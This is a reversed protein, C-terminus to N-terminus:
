AHHTDGKDRCANAMMELDEFSACLEPSDDIWIDANYCHKKQRMSTYVIPIGLKIANAEIDTNDWDPFRFTVLEITHGRQKAHAVFAQWLEPDATYTDDHDLAIKLPRKMLVGKAKCEKCYYPKNAHYRGECIWGDCHSCHLHWKGDVEKLNSKM